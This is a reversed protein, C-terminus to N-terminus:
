DNLTLELSGLKEGLDFWIRQIKRMNLDIEAGGINCKLTWRGVGEVEFGHRTYQCCEARRPELM